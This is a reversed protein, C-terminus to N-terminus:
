RGIMRRGRGSLGEGTGYAFEKGGEDYFIAGGGYRGYGVM